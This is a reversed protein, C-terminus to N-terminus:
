CVKNKGSTQAESLAQGAHDIISKRDIGDYPFTAIGISITVNGGPLNEQGSFPHEAVLTRIREAVFLAEERTIEPLIIAFTGFGYRSVINSKRTNKKLIDAITRVAKDGASSDQADCIKMFHDVAMFLLSFSHKYRKSREVETGLLEMLYRQNYLGTPGDQTALERLISSMRTSEENKLKLEELLVKNSQILDIKEKARQVVRSIDDLNNFPKPLYDYANFRLAEIANNVEAHSTMIIVETDASIQKIQKLLEIGSMGPMVIDSILLSYDGKSFLELAEEGSGAVDVHYGDNSLISEVVQSINPDDDVVLIDCKITM